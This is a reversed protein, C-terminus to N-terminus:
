GVSAMSPTLLTHLEQVSRKPHIGPSLNPAVHKAFYQDANTKSEWVETIRWGGDVPHASHLIFGPAQKLGESLVAFMGDYGEQTQGKVEATVLVAM